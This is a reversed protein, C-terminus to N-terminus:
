NRRLPIRGEDESAKVVLTNGSLSKALNPILTVVSSAVCGEYDRNKKVLIILM